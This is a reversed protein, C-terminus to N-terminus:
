DVRQPCAEAPVNKEVLSCDSSTTKAWSQITHRRPGSKWAAAGRRPVAAAAEWAPAAAGPSPAQHAPRRPRGSPRCGDPGPERLRGRVATRLARFQRSRARGPRRPRPEPRGPVPRLPAPRAPRGHPSAVGFRADLRMKADRPEAAFGSYSPLAPSSGRWDQGGPIAWRPPSTAPPDARAAPRGPPSSVGFRAHSRMKALIRSPPLIATARCRSLRGGCIRAARPRGDRHRPRQHTPEIMRQRAKKCCVGKAAM